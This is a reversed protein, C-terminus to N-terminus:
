INVTYQKTLKAAETTLPSEFQPNVHIRIITCHVKLRTNYRIYKHIHVM